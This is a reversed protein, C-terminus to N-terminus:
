VLRAPKLAGISKHRILRADFLPKFLAFLAISPSVADIRSGSRLRQTWRFSNIGQPSFVSFRFLWRTLETEDLADTLFAEVDALGVQSHGEFPPEADPGAEVLRRQLITGINAAFGRGSWVRRLPIQEPISWWDGLHDAGLWYSLTPATIESPRGPTTSYTSRISALAFALRIEPTIGDLERVLSTVWEGPLLRFRVKHKRHNRNRDVTRLATVIADVLSRKEETGPRTALEILARDLPGRVGAYIWRKGKKWDRPLSERLNLAIEVASALASDPHERVPVIAALRSEFTNESTTHFLIYRRFEDIGAEVGRELIAASFAAATLAARGRVEARGRSFLTEAEVVSMPRSWIPLWVEGVSKGAEGASEPSAPTTVFPFAGSAARQSGIQRSTSGRLMPLAECALVMAWPTVQGERFPKRTGSNYVKNASSFWCGAAFDDLFRCSGGALFSSLDEEIAKKTKGKATALIKEANKWGAAFDRRGANGGSGFLPNFSLREGIALHSQFLPLVKEGAKQSRWQNTADSARNPTDIKQASAWHRGYDSWQRAAGVSLLFAILSEVNLPGKVLLFQNDRWCGRIGPWERAALTLLGISALYNGITDPVLGPLQVVPWHAATPPQIASDLNLFQDSM